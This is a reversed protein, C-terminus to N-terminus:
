RLGRKSITFTYYISTEDRETHSLAWRGKWGDARAVKLIQTITPIGIDWVLDVRCELGDKTVGCVVRDHVGYGTCASEHDLHLVNLHGFKGHWGPFAALIQSETDYRPGTCQKM